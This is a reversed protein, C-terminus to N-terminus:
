ATKLGFSRSSADLNAFVSAKQSHSTQREGRGLVINELEKVAVIGHGVADNESVPAISPGGSFSVDSKLRGVVGLPGHIKMALRHSRPVNFQENAVLFFM